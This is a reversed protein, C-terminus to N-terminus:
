RIRIWVREKVAISKAGWYEYNPIESITGIIRSSYKEEEEETMVSVTGNPGSCVPWGIHNKAFEKGEYVYALVRGSVAIPTNCNNKEDQGIAFGFTDSIIECGRQLRETTLALVGNGLEYVCRGPEQTEDQNDKRFEAYDNWAAGFLVADQTYVSSNHVLTKYGTTDVTTGTVYAKVTSASTYTNLANTANTANISNTVSDSWVVDRDAGSAKSLVQGQTGGAPLEYMNGESVQFFLQGTTGTTPLTEGYSATTVQIIPVSLKQTAPNYRFLDAKQLVQTVAATTASFGLMVPYNTNNTNVAQATVYTDTRDAYDCMVWYTGDFIFSVISGDFWSNKYGVDPKTTGYRMIQYNSFGTIALVPTAATNTYTFKVAIMSGTKPKTATTSDPTIKGSIITATKTTTAQGTGCTLYCIGDTVAEGWSGDNRLFTDTANGLTINSRIITGNSDTMAFSQGSAATTQAEITGDKTINGHVHNKLAYDTAYGLAHWANNSWVYQEGESDIVVDGEQLSTVSGGSKLTLSATTSGESLNQTVIGRFRMSSSLGIDEPTITVATTGDYSKSFLQLIPLQDLKGLAKGGLNAWANATTSAGTGGNAIALTGTVGPLINQSGDFAAAATSALNVKIDRATKLETATDANGNLAGVFTTATVKGAFFSDKTVGIGGAIQVAGTATSTSSTGDRIKLTGTSIEAGFYSNKAVGIGGATYISGNNTATAATTARIVLNNVSIQNGFYSAANVGIGGVVVLAGTNTSTASVSGNITTKWSAAATGTTTIGGYWTPTSTSGAARLLLGATGGDSPAYITTNRTYGNSNNIKPLGWYIARETLLTTGTSIARVATADTVDKAAAGGISNWTVYTTTITNGSADAIAKDATGATAPKGISVTQTTGGSPTVTFNGATGDNFTYTTNDSAPIQVTHTSIGTVHGAADVSIYPVNFTGGYNPTQASSDGYNGATAGSLSHGITLVDTGTGGNTGALQVWKNGAAVKMAETYTTSVIQTTNPTIATEADSQQPTIKGYGADRSNSNWYDTSRWNTGDYVMLVVSGNAYHTTVRTNNLYVPIAGSSTAAGEPPNTFTLNLSANGSPANTIKFAIVKGVTLSSDKTVGTWASSSGTKTDLIYEIPSGAFGNIKWRLSDETSGLSYGYDSNPVLDAKFTMKAM